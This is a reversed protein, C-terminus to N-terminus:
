PKFRDLRPSPRLIPQHPDKPAISAPPRGLAKPEPPHLAGPHKRQQWESPNTRPDFADRCASARPGSLDSCDTGTAFPATNNQAQAATLPFATAVILIAVAMWTRQTTVDAKSITPPWRM